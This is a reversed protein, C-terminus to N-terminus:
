RSDQDAQSSSQPSDESDGIRGKKALGCELVRKSTINPKCSLLEDIEEYHEFTERNNGSRSNHDKVRKYENQLYKIRSNCQAGTRLSSISQDKLFSYRCSQSPTGRM